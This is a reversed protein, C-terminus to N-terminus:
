VSHTEQIIKKMQAVNRAKEEMISRKKKGLGYKQNGLLLKKHPRITLGVGLWSLGMNTVEPM